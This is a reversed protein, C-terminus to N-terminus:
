SGRLVHEWKSRTQATALDRERQEDARRWENSAPPSDLMRRVAGAVATPTRDARVGPAWRPVVQDLAEVDLTIVPLRLEAAELLSMGFTEYDSLHLLVDAVAMERLVRARDVHGELHVRDGIGLIRGLAELRDYEPGSGLITLTTSSPLEALARLCLDHNKFAKLAGVALLRSNGRQAMPRVGKSVGPVLNPIVVVDAVGLSSVTKAVGDSVAVVIEARRYVARAARALVRIRRSMLLRTSLLSHEWVIVRARQGFPVWRVTVAAWLGVIVVVPGSRSRARRVVMRWAAPGAVVSCRSDVVTAKPRRLTLIQVDRVDSLEAALAFMAREIGLPPDVRYCVLLVGETTAERKADGEM